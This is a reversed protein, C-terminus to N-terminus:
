WSDDTWPSFMGDTTNGIENARVRARRSDEPAYNSLLYGLVCGCMLKHPMASLVDNVSRRSKGQDSKTNDTVIFRDM